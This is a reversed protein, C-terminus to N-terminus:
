MVKAPSNNLACNPGSLFSTAHKAGPVTVMRRPAGSAFRDRSIKLFQPKVRERPSGRQESQLGHTLSTPSM